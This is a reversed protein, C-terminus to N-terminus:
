YGPSACSQGVEEAASVLNAVVISAGVVTGTATMVGCGIWAYKARISRASSRYAKTYVDVYESSKGLLRSTQPTSTVVYSIGVGIVNLLCGAAFWPFWSLDRKADAKAASRAEETESTQALVPAALVAAALVCVFLRRFPSPETM